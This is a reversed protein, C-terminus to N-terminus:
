HFRKKYFFDLDFEGYLDRQAVASFQPSIAWEVRIAQSNSRTVDQIYTFTIERTVQQQFTLTAQPTNSTGVIQPDISLKSVGFLRQLRGSIPNAVAQGLLASAGAQGYNQEPAVPAHAALVPDTSPVKGSALLSVIQQFELPPDSRYSLKLREIPGSVSVSVDVGQVTTELDVNLIPEIKQPDYFAITGQDITYKAGFFIVDGQTVTVRGLIGPHDPTGRLTLNADAQLNQTLTTRFQVDPSTRIRVDFHMGALIGTSATAIPPPTAASTLVSGIDSHAHMAVDQVSITGSVLSKSTSGTLTLRAGIQTTVAAMAEVHVRSATAQLRFQMEPGGYSVAGSLTVKGGGSEGSINQVVAETGNFAVTGTANSIGQPADLLNFSAKDLRLTGNVVPQSPTGTVATNLTVAGSSFINPDFAQLVDLRINGDARLNMQRPGKLPATGSVTLNTFPGAIQFYQVTLVSHDLALLINGTNHLEFKVRPAKGKPTTVSHAELTTLTVSGRFKDTDTVPGSLEVQGNVTGDFPQLPGGLLPSLGGYTLDAVSVQATLPYEGALGLRGSGKITSRAFNSNLNFDVASGHTIATATVDGLPKKNMSLRNASLNANLTSFLPAAKGRLTAAGDAALRIVGDLGPRAQQLTRLRTIQIDNSQVHFRLSGESLNNAPHAFNATLEVSSPGDDVRFQPVDIAQGTYNVVAQLRDFPEGYAAAKTVTLNLNARPDQLTGGVQGNLALTGSVPLDTRGAIALVRDIPLGSIAATATTQHNGTLASEGNVRITSGAFNSDVRYRLAGGTAAATATFDGLAKGQMQLNRAAANANLTVIEVDLGGVGPRINASADGNLNLVGRLGPRSKVLSQFQELQVQNSAVHATLSGRQLDNPAHQYHGTADIRSAGAVLQLTQLDIASQTMVAHLALSDFPEGEISGRDVRLVADGRPDGITGTLHADATLAGTAAIDAQGALALVDRVDTNRVTADLRLADFKEPVWQHMGIAGSFRAQLPGRTLLADKVSAGSKAADLAATFSTFPRGQVAFNNVSVQATIRPASLSGTVVADVTAAGNNSFSVPVVALPRFDAFDRSVAHLQIQQGLSGSLDVRTHPLAVYSRELTVNGSRGNYDVGLHGSVPIGRRGPAIALNGRAALTATNKLDGQLQLPGSIVGDYGLPKALLARTMQDIDFNHLNGAVQLQSMEQLAASGAFSGGLASLRLADLAIRHPDATLSSDVTIGALHTTGQTFALQRGEVNATVLYKNHLDLTLNGAAKLTGEPRAAVRLLRGLEGVAISSTFQVAAPRSADKLTGSAELKTQGITVQARQLQIRADDMSGSIEANLIRPGRQIDLPMSLGAARRVDDLAIQANVHASTRPAILHEMAGTVVVKSQATFIEAATVGIKDKELTVPLKVSIDLAPNAGSKWHLPSIDIEGTYRPRLPNYGLQARLNEGSANLEAKREAFTFSGNRLDFRRIALDVVTELGTKDSSKAPVKPSPVNTRGDAFVMVNAQPTEVLLYAIDVFGKFPSLLKLDAQLLNARLLPAAGAPELGHIVFNRIQARLHTWDFTFAGIEVTGGTSDEVAAVIKARVMDRFWDTRVIIVGALFGILTIGALSGGVIAAIKRGRTM